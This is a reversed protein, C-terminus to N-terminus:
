DDGVVYMRAHLMVVVHMCSLFSVEGKSSYDPLTHVEDVAEHIKRGSEAGGQLLWM